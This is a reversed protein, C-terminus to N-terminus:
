RLRALFASSILKGRSRVKSNAHGKLSEFRTIIIVCSVCCLKTQPELEIGVMIFFNCAINLGELDGEAVRIVM